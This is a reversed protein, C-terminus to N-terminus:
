RSDISELFQMCHYVPRYGISTSGFADSTPGRSKRSFTVLMTWNDVSPWELSMRLLAFMKQMVLAKECDLVQTTELLQSALHKRSVRVEIEMFHLIVRALSVLKKFLTDSELTCAYDMRSILIRLLLWDDTTWNDKPPPTYRQLCKTCLNINYSTNSSQNEVCIVCLM